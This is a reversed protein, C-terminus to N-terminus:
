FEVKDDGNVATVTYGLAHLLNIMEVAKLAGNNLKRNLSQQTVGILPAVKTESTGQQMIAIRIAMHLKKADM